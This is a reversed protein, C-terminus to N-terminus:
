LGEPLKELKFEAPPAGNFGVHVRFLAGGNKASEPNKEPDEEAASTIFLDEGVFVSCTICNTPLDIQGVIKGQPSIRLVRAENYVAQWLHGETDIAFGDPEGHGDHQYFVRENSVAGTAVDFDFALIKRQSSHTFYLTKNDASWGVSNPITLSSLVTRRSSAGDFCFLAGEPQPAGVHFDNMTGLWFRGAPDVAGDNSRLREATAADDFSRQVYAYKGTPRDLVAVGLKGGVLIKESSPIGAIDATVSVPTDLQTTKLSSPGVALDIVHLQKKKIDVFRLHNQKPEYYPAEGLGCHINLYPEIVKWRQIDSGSM